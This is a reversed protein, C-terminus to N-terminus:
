DVKQSTIHSGDGTRRIRNAIMEPSTTKLDWVWGCKEAALILVTIINFYEIGGHEGGKFDMPFAHHFNHYGEGFTWYVMFKNDTASIGGDYPRSGIMHNITNSFNLHTFNLSYRFLNMWFAIWLTEGWFYNPLITPLGMVLICWLIEYYRRLFIEILM